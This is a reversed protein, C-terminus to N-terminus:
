AVIKVLNSKHSVCNSAFANLLSCYFVPFLFHLQSFHNLFAFKSRFLINTLQTTLCVTALKCYCSFRILFTVKLMFGDQIYIIKFINFYGCGIRHNEISKLYSAYFLNKDLGQIKEEFRTKSYSNFFSKAIHISDCTCLALNAWVLIDYSVSNPDSQKM